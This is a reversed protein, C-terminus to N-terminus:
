LKEPLSRYRSRRRMQWM